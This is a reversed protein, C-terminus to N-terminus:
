PASTPATMTPPRMSPSSPKNARQHRRIMVGMTAATTTVEIPNESSPTPAAEKPPPEPASSKPLAVFRMRPVTESRAHRTNWPRALPAVLCSETSKPRTTPYRTAMGRPLTSKEPKAEACSKESGPTSGTVGSNLRPAMMVTVSMKRTEAVSVTPSQEASVAAASRRLGVSLSSEPATVASPRTLESAPTNPQEGTVENECFTPRMAMVPTTFRRAMAVPATRTMRM